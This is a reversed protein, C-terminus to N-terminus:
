EKILMPGGGECAGDHEEDKPATLDTCVLYTKNDKKDFERVYKTHMSLKRNTSSDIAIWDLQYGNAIKKVHPEVSPYPFPTKKDSADLAWLSRMTATPLDYLYYETSMHFRNPAYEYIPCLRTIVAHSSSAEIVQISYNPCIDHPTGRPSAFRFIQKLGKKEIYLRGTKPDLRIQLGTPKDLPLKLHESNKADANLTYLGWIEKNTGTALLKQYYAEAEGDLDDNSKEKALTNACSNSCHSTDLSSAQAIQSLSKPDNPKAFVDESFILCFVM